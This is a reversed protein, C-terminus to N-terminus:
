DVAPLQRLRRVQSMKCDNSIRSHVAGDHMINMIRCSVELSEDLSSLRRPLGNFVSGSLGRCIMHMDRGGVDYKLKILVPKWLVTKRSPQEPIAAGSQQLADSDTFWHIIKARATVEHRDSKFITLVTLIGGRVLHQSVSDPIIDLM